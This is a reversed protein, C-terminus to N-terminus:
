RAVIEELRRRVADRVDAPELVTVDPGYQLVHRVAWDTDALQHEMVLSGDEALTKGEREAIWRAIAPSYRLRMTRADDAQFAKGDPMVQELSFERPREYRAALKEVEEVRDLRFFRVGDTTECHAVAYWMGETFVIAYPCIVRRTVTEDAGKRYTLRVKHGSRHAERLVRLRDLSGAAALSAVRLEGVEDAPLRSIAARLRERAGDIAAHEEAPREARLMALGLELACLEGRTLRMPRLFHNPLISVKGDAELYIQLGEVFGGPAEFRESISQIDRLVVAREVGASRAVEVLDHTEGDAIRPILHLIRALQGAATDTM